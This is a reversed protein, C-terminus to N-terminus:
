PVYRILAYQLRRVGTGAYIDQASDVIGKLAPNGQVQIAADAGREKALKAVAVRAAAEEGSPGSAQQMAVGIISYRRPPAGETWFEVGEVELKIGGSGEYVKGGDQYPQFGVTACGAVLAAVLAVWIVRM